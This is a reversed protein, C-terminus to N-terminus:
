FISRLVQTAKQVAAPQAPLTLGRGFNALPGAQRALGQLGTPFIGTLQSQTDGAKYVRVLEASFRIAQGTGQTRPININQLAMDEYVRYNTIVTVLEKNDRIEYLADFAEQANNQFGGSLPTNSIFGEITITEPENVIHDSINSGNEVTYKTINSSASHNESLTAEITLAGIQTKRERKPNFLISLSM